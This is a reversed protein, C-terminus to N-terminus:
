RPPGHGGGLSHDHASHAHGNGRAPMLIQPPEPRSTASTLRASLLSPLTTSCHFYGYCKAAPTPPASTRERRRLAGHPASSPRENPRAFPSSPLATSTGTSTPVANLGTRRAPGTERAECPCTGAAHAANM